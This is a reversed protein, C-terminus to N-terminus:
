LCFFMLLYRHAARQKRKIGRAPLDNFKGDVDKAGWRMARDQLSGLNAAGEAISSLRLIKDGFILAGVRACYLIAKHMVSKFPM